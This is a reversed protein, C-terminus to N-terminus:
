GLDPIKINNALQNWGEAGIHPHVPIPNIGAKYISRLTPWHTEGMIDNLARSYNRDAIANLEEPSQYVDVTSLDDEKPDYTEVDDPNEGVVLYYSEQTNLTYSEVRDVGHGTNSLDEIVPALTAALVGCASAFQAALYSLIHPNTKIYDAIMEFSDNLYYNFDAHSGGRAVAHFQLYHEVADKLLAKISTEDMVLLTGHDDWYEHRKEHGVPFRENAVTYAANRLVDAMQQLTHEIEHHNITMGIARPQM